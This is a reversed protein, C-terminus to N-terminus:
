DLLEWWGGWEHPVGGVVLMLESRELGKDPWSGRQTSCASRKMNADFSMSAKSPLGWSACAIWCNSKDSLMNPEALAKLSCMRALSTSSSGSCKAPLTLITNRFTNMEQKVLCLGRGLQIKASAAREAGGRGGSAKNESSQNGAACAVADVRAM